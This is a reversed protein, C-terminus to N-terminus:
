AMLVFFTISSSSWTPVTPVNAAAPSTSTARGEFRRTTIRM